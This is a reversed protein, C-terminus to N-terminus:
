SLIGCCRTCAPFVKDKKLQMRFENLKEGRWIDHFKQEKINGANLKICCRALIIVDGNAQISTSIWPVYCQNKNINYEPNNYYNFVEKESYLNPIFGIHVSFNNEIIKCINEWLVKCDILKPDVSDICSTTVPYTDLYKQNHKLAMVEDVFNLHSFTIEDISIEQALNNMFDFLVNYNYNSICCNIKVKIKKKHDNEYEQMRKIGSICKLYVGNVGRIRDHVIPTGDLSVSLEDVGIDVFDEVYRELLFGNTGICVYMGLSKIYKILPILDNYLLPETGVIYIKPSFEKVEDLFYKWDDLSLMDEKILNKFLQTNSNGQGIDCMVCKLNCRNNVTLYIAKPNNLFVKSKQENINNKFYTLIKNPNKVGKIILTRLKKIM